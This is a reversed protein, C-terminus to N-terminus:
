PLRRERRLLRELRRPDDTLIGQVGLRILRQHESRSNITWSILREVRPEDGTTRAARVHERLRAVDRTIIEQYLRWAGFTLAPRGISAIRNNESIAARVGSYKDEDLVVGPAVEIDWSFSQDGAHPKMAELVNRHPTMYICEFSPRFEEILARVAKTFPEAFRVADGPIKVDLFAVRLKPQDRAWEFFERLTPIHAEARKRFFFLVSRQYGHHARLEELTLEHTPRRWPNWLKPTDPLYKVASELGLQRALAVTDNPDWDHWLVIHGDKTMSLDIEIANAGEEVALTLSPLTNEVERRAAGRHGVILFPADNEDFSKTPKPTRIRDLARLPATLGRKLAHLGRVATSASARRAAALTRAPARLPKALTEAREVRKREADLQGLYRDAAKLRLDPAPM